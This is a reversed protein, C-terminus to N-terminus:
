LGSVVLAAQLKNVLLHPLAGLLLVLLALFVLTFLTAPLPRIIKAGAPPDVAFAQKLLQLYYYLSVVSMALALIVLWLLGLSRTSASAAATFVYFKAFFGAFPPLGALSLLFVLLCVALAPSRRSLGTFADYADSGTQQEVVAVVGFAGVMTLAYTTVYYLLAITGMTNHAMLAPLMYGAHAIASYALLRKVRTQAIAALNGFTMSLVALVALVPVWGPAFGNWVGSGEAGALGALTMRALVFFGAVKSGSAILAASPTPAGQYVDPAWLHFPAAAIKFGLGILMMVMAALLVPDTARDRLQGAIRILNTEGTLGYVWSMGFLLFAASVGGLLFYKLAAESSELKDKQFATLIYLSLSTLELSVFLMLLDVSSVLFMMGLTALALLAFYEGVHPTFKSELSVLATFITLFLIVQKMLQTLPDIVLMSTSNPDALSYHRSWGIALMAGASLLFAAVQQRRPISQRRMVGADFFLVILGTITLVTEPALLRLLGLYNVTNM